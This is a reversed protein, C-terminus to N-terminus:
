NRANKTFTTTAVEAQCVANYIDCDKFHTRMNRTWQVLLAVNSTGAFRLEKNANIWKIFAYKADRWEKTGKLAWYEDLQANTPDPKRLRRLLPAM